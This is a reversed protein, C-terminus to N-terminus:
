SVCMMHSGAWDTAEFVVDNIFKEFTPTITGDRLTIGEGAVLFWFVERVLLSDNRHNGTQVASVALDHRIQIDDTAYDIIAIADVTM